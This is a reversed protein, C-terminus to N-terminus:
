REDPADEDHVVTLLPIPTPRKPPCFRQHMEAEFLSFDEERIQPQNQFNVLPVSATLPTGDGIRLVVDPRKCTAQIYADLLARKAQENEIKGERQTAIIFAIDQKRTEDLLEVTRPEDHLYDHAEDCYFYLPLRQHTNLRKRTVHILQALFYRGILECNDQTEGKNTSIIIVQPKLTEEYLDFRNEPQAFMGRFFRDATLTDLRSKLAGITAAYNGDFLRRTLFDRTDPDVSTLDYTKARNGKKSPDELMTRFDAITANPILELAQMAHKIITKTHGGIAGMTTGIFFSLLFEKAETEANLAFMNLAPPHQKSIELFLLKGELDGGKHFRVNRPLNYTLAAKQSDMIVVCGADACVKDFDTNVSTSLFNTKGTGPRGQVFMHEFRRDEPLSYPQTTFDTYRSTVPNANSVLLREFNDFGETLEDAFLKAEHESTCHWSTTRGYFYGFRVSEDDTRPLIIITGMDQTQIIHHEESTARVVVELNVGGRFCWETKPTIFVDM